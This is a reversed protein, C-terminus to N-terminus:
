VRCPYKIHRLITRYQPSPSQKGKWPLQARTEIAKLIWRGRGPKLGRVKPENALVIMVLGCFAIFLLRCCISINDYRLLEVESCATSTHLRTQHLLTQQLAVVSNIISVISYYMTILIIVYM